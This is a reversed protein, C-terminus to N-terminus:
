LPMFCDSFQKESLAAFSYHRPLFWALHQTVSRFLEETEFAEPTLNFVLDQSAEEGPGGNRSMLLVKPSKVGNNLLFQRLITRATEPLVFESPQGVLVKEDKRITEDEKAGSFLTPGTTYFSGTLHLNLIDGYSLVWDPQGDNPNIVVGYGSKLLFDDKMRDIVYCQFREKPRPMFLQFYPFGDPGTIVQPDGCRFSAHVINELFSKQWEEGRNERPVDILEFILQTKELDGLYLERVPTQDITAPQGKKKFVDFLGM